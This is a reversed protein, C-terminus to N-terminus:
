RYKYRPDSKNVYVMIVPDQESDDIWARSDPFRRENKLVRVLIVGEGHFFAMYQGEDILYKKVFDEFTRYEFLKTAAVLLRSASQHQERDKLFYFMSWVFRRATVRWGWSMIGFPVSVVAIILHILHSMVVDILKHIWVEPSRVLGYVGLLFGGYLGLLDAIRDM